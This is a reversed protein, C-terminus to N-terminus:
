LITAQLGRCSGKQCTTASKFSVCHPFLTGLVSKFSTKIGRSTYIITAFTASSIRIHCKSEGRADGATQWGCPNHPICMYFYYVLRGYISGPAMHSRFGLRAKSAEVSRTSVEACPARAGWWVVSCFSDAPVVEMAIHCTSWNVNHQPIPSNYFIAIIGTKYINLCFSRKLDMSLYTSPSFMHM